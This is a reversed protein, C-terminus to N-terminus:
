TKGYYKSAIKGGANGLASGAAGYLANQQNMQAVKNRYYDEYNQGQLGAMELGMNAADYDMQDAISGLEDSIENSRNAIASRSQAIQDAYKKQALGSGLLGRRNYENEADKLREALLRKQSKAEQNLLGEKTTGLNQRYKSSVGQAEKQIGQLVGQSRNYEDEAKKSQDKMQNVKQQGRVADGAVKFPALPSIYGLPGGAATTDGIGKVTQSLGKGIDSGITSLSKGQLAGTVPATLTKAAGGVVNTVGKGANSVAKSVSSGM